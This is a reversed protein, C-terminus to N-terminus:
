WKRVEGFRVDFKDRLADGLINVSYILLFICLGPMIILHPASRYYLIADNIMVSWDPTPPQVGLGLFSLGAVSLIGRGIRITFLVLLKSFINPLIHLFIIRLNSCGICYLGEIFPEKKIQIVEARVIRSFGAWSTIVLAIILSAASPGFVGAIAIMFCSGPIGQFVNSISTIFLDIKGGFFGCIIGAILGMGLSLVAAALSLLIAARSGFLIRSYIDRGLADTGLFHEASLGQMRNIIDPEFPNHTALVPAFVSSFIIIFLIILALYLQFNHKMVMKSKM